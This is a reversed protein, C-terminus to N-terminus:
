VPQFPQSKEIASIVTMIEPNVEHYRMIRIIREGNLIVGYEKQAWESLRSIVDKGCVIARQGDQTAWLADVRQRAMKHATGAMLKRDSQQIYTSINDVTEDKMAVVISDITADIEEVTPSRNGKRMEKAILRQIATPVLFYNEMEKKTWIHLKIGKKKAEQLRENIAEQTFYDSDFLCYTAINEDFANRLLDPYGTAHKWGSWGGLEIMPITEFPENSKAFLLHHLARLFVVDDPGEVLILKHASWIRALQLNHVSGISKILSQVYPVSDAFGSKQSRRNVVLIESPEVESMIEVSHTAVIIQKDLGKLLRILKRQLDAHMYVDPEDLIISESSRARALFWMTQLWMQLGHGVWGAETGFNNDYLTLMLQAQPMEGVIEFDVIRLDKWTSEVLRKMEDYHERFLYIQNRFHASSWTAPIVQRAYDPTLLREERPIPTVQPLISIPALNLRQAQGKTTVVKGESDMVVAFIDADTGIYIQITVGDNFVVKIEAPPDGLRYFISKDNFDIGKLSPSFGRYSRPASLWRPVDNFNVSGLRSTVISLLRLAEIATSKGANNPGVIISTKRFPIIHNQFGRYNTLQIESIM